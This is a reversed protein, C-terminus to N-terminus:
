LTGFFTSFELHRGIHVTGLGMCYTEYFYMRLNGTKVLMGKLLVSFRFNKKAAQGTEM